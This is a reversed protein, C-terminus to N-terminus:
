AADLRCERALKNLIALAGDFDFESIAARLAALRQADAAGSLADAVTQVEDAADGDNAEILAKLKAAAAAARERNFEAAAAPAGEGVASRIAEVQLSVAAGLEAIGEPLLADGDRIAREVKAAASQVSGIGINGAVGKVTHALREALARDGQELAGSIQSAVGAQKEVFQELLSRYLRKNGAVRKLGGAMDIAEIVPLDAAEAAPRRAASDAVAAERPKAWKALAAFLADPDIPKTVHDNMGAELCRQREEVLAHATMAVIPLDNFRPNARLLRAAAHGDMEPMQLDMLVIEFPPPQPGEELLKVAIGGHGAITVAAGASELLERAVQQNMENDEVLLVRIGTANYGTSEGTPQRAGATEAGPVGFLELLTDYMVSANVPKLLYGDVGVLEAQARVEEREFATVMVIRPINKLRGEQRIIASAQIGDMGPMHWDMLVLKYPDTSDSAALERLAEEGSSVAVARLGFGRLSDTLIERAQINDDV